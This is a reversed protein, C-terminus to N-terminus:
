PFSAATGAASAEAVTGPPLAAAPLLPAECCVKRRELMWRRIVGDPRVLDPNRDSRVISLPM